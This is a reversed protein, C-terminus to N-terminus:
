FRGTHPTEVGYAEATARIDRLVEPNRTRAYQYILNYVKQRAWDERIDRGGDGGVESLSLDFVMDCPSDRSEGLAQFVVRDDGRPLRGFLVLQRDLYLNTTQAPFMEIRTSAPLIFRIDSLVPRSLQGLREHMSDPIDWRGRQVIYSDGRNCYSLLDLLYGNATQGTGFTFISLRGANVRSFGAVIDSSNLVGTTPQGDSVMFVILPRGQRPALAASMETLSKFVDTAGESVLSEVFRRATALSEADPSRWTPFAFGATDSFAMVNFADAPGVRDLCKVLGQRCFHLKQETMSASSDLVLLVDRPMVPLIDPGVRELGIRFYTHRRDLLPNYVTVDARLFNDLARRGGAADKRDQEGIAAGRGAGSGGDGGAGAPLSPGVRSGAGGDGDLVASAMRDPVPVPPPLFASFPDSVAASMRVSSSPDFPAVVEEATRTREVAPVSRRPIRPADDRVVRKEIELIEHRPQWVNQRPLEPAAPMDADGTAVRESLRKPEIRAPDVPVTLRSVGAAADGAVVPSLSPSTLRVSSPREASEPRVEALSLGRWRHDEEQQRRTYDDLKLGPLWTILAAHIGLSVGCAIVAATTHREVTRSTRGGGPMM